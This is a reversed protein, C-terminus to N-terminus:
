GTRGQFPNRRPSRGMIHVSAPRSALPGRQYIKAAAHSIACSRAQPAPDFDWTGALLCTLIARRGNTPIRPLTYHVPRCQGPHPLSVRHCTVQITGDPARTPPGHQRAHKRQPQGGFNVRTPIDRHQIGARVRSLEAYTQCEQRTTRRRHRVRAVPPEPNPHQRPLTPERPGHRGGPIPLDAKLDRRGTHRRDAEITGRPLEPERGQIRVLPGELDEVYNISGGSGPPVVTQRNQRRPQWRDAIGVLGGAVQAERPVVAPNPFGRGNVRVAVDPRVVAQCKQFEVLRRDAIVVGRVAVQFVGHVVISLATPRVGDHIAGAVGPAVRPQAHHEPLRRDAEAPWAVLELVGTEVARAPLARYDVVVGIGPPRRTQIHEGQAARRDRVPVLARTQLERPM